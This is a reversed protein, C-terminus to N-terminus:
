NDEVESSYIGNNAYEHLSKEGEYSYTLSTKKMDKLLEKYKPSKQEWTLGSTLAVKSGWWSKERKIGRRPM